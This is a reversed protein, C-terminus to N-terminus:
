YKSMNGKIKLVSQIRKPMSAALTSFYSADFHVWMKKLEETLNKINSPRSKELNTKMVHWANEIPNLDPSNGPWDLVHINNRVMFEKVAKSKHAPAGDHMFFKADHISWFTLMHDELVQIYNTAKMTMNKPLFYLGASGKHGTFAGWVMVSDPHKVTKVTYHPDYRSVSSPRRVIKSGGRVLRFTSEDSFMVKQWDASTWDKYKQCFDLRRKKMAETLLPKKAARRAPLKLDKQLRHQITRVSVNQLLIPHKEKLGVATISPDQKVERALIKDTRPSTKRPAGSGPKRAPVEGPPLNEAVSKLNYITRRTVKLEAAVRIVSWGEDLLTLARTKDQLSLKARGM